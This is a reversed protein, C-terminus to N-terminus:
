ISTCTYTKSEGRYSTTQLPYNRWVFASYHEQAIGVNMTLVTVISKDTIWRCYEMIERNNGTNCDHRQHIPFGTTTYIDTLSM